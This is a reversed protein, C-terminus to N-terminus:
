QGSGNLSFASAKRLVRQWEAIVVKVVAFIKFQAFPFTFIKGKAVPLESLDVAL